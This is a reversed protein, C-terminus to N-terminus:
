HMKEGFIVCIREFVGLFLYNKGSAFICLCGIVVGVDAIACRLASLQVYSTFLRPALVM